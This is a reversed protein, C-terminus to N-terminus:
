KGLLGDASTGFAKFLTSALNMLLYTVEVKLKTFEFRIDRISRMNSEFDGGLGGMMTDQIKQLDMFRSRLEPNWAIDQMSYGLADTSIKLKKAADVSMYMHMAYLQYGMDGMAMKDLLGVTAAGIAAYAGAVAGGMEIFRKTFGTTHQAAMKDVNDLTRRFQDLSPQDTKFGLSVLYSKITSFDGTM